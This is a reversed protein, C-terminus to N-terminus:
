LWRPLRHSKREEENVRDGPLPGRLSDARAISM